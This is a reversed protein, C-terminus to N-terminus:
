GGGKQRDPALLQLVRLNLSSTIKEVVKGREIGVQLYAKAAAVSSLVIVGSASVMLRQAIRSEPAVLWKRVVSAGAEFTWCVVAGMMARRGLPSRTCEVCVHVSSMGVRGRVARAAWMIGPRAEWERRDTTVKHLAPQSTCKVLIPHVMVYRPRVMTQPRFHVCVPRQISGSACWASVTSWSVCCPFSAEGSDGGVCAKAALM